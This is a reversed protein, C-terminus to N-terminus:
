LMGLHPHNPSIVFGSKEYQFNVHSKLMYQFYEQLADKEHQTGYDTAPSSFKEAEPYCINRILTLSPKTLSTHCAGYMRSATIRGARFQFWLKNKAQGRTTKEVQSCVIM